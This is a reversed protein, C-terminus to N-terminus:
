IKKNLPKRSADLVAIATMNLMGRSTISPTVIHVSRSAGLLIPGVHLANATQTVVNLTISASDLNPFVLLNAEGDLTSHPYVRERLQANLATDGHM